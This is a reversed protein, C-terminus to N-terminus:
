APTDERLRSRHNRGGGRPSHNGAGRYGAPIGPQFVVIGRSLAYAKVPPPTLKHGRGSPKDPNTVVFVVDHGGEECIARLAEAAFAPTGMFVVRM